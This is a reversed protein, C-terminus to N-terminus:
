ASAEVGSLQALRSRLSSLRSGRGPEPAEVEEVISAPAGEPARGLRHLMSQFREAMSEGDAERTKILLSAVDEPETIECLTSLAPVGGRLGTCQAVLLIRRDVKLLILTQGRAIPYRGLVELIGSPARGGPGIAMALGGRARAAGAVVVKAVVIIAVVVLLAMMTRGLWGKNSSSESADPDERSAYPNAGPRGLPAMSEHRSESPAVQAPSEVTPEPGVATQAGATGAGILVAMILVLIAINARGGAM